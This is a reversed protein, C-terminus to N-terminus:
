SSGPLHSLQSAPAQFDIILCSSLEVECWIIAYRAIQGLHQLLSQQLSSCVGHEVARDLWTVRCHELWSSENGYRGRSLDYVFRLHLHAVESCSSLTMIACVLAWTCTAGPLSGSMMSSPTAQICSVAVPPRNSSPIESSPGRTGSMRQQMGEM